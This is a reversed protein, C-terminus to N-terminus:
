PLIKFKVLIIENLLADFFLHNFFWSTFNIPIQLLSCNILYVDFVTYGGLYVFVICDDLRANIVDSFLEDRVWLKNQRQKGLDLGQLRDELDIDDETFYYYYYYYYYYYIQLYFPKNSYIDWTLLGSGSM